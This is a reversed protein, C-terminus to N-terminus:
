RNLHCKTQLIEHIMEGPTHSGILAAIFGTSQTVSLDWVVAAIPLLDTVDTLSSFYCSISIICPRCCLKALQSLQGVGALLSAM